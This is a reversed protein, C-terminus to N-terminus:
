PSCLAWPAPPWCAGTNVAPGGVFSGLAIDANFSMPHLSASFTLAGPTPLLVISTLLGLAFVCAYAAKGDFASSLAAGIPVGVVSSASFGALM